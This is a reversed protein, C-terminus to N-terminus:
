RHQARTLLDATQAATRVDEFDGTGAPLYGTAGNATLIARHTPNTPDLALFADRLVNALSADLSQQVAWVYDVYPPTTQLIRADNADLRGDAFMSRVINCNAVGMVVTGDSVWGATQDHGSSHRVSAFFTEPIIDQKALFYRPMLHGSTSLEPGFSFKEGAFDALSRRADSAPVLYCSTFRLDVDRMVLPRAGSREEAQVFTLGGLHALQVHGAVFDEVLEGYSSPISLSIDLGTAAQLYGILPDYRESVSARSQDPLVGVTIAAPPQGEDACACVLTALGLVLTRM